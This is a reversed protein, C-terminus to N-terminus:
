AVTVEGNVADYIVGNVMRGLLTLVELINPDSPDVATGLASVTISMGDGIVQDPATTHIALRADCEGIKRAVESEPALSEWEIIERIEEPVWDPDNEIQILFPIPTHVLLQPVVVGYGSWQTVSVRWSLSERLYEALFQMSLDLQKSNFCIHASSIMIIKAATQSHSSISLSRHQESLKPKSMLSQGYFATPTEWSRHGTPQWGLDDDWAFTHKSRHNQAKSIPSKVRTVKPM